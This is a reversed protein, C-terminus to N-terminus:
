VKMPMSDELSIMLVLLESNEKIYMSTVHLTSTKGLTTNPNIRQIHSNIDRWSSEKHFEQTKLEINLSTFQTMMWIISSLANELESTRLLMKLLQSKSIVTSNWYRDTTNSGSQHLLQSPMMLMNHEQLLLPHSKTHGTRWQRWFSQTLMRKYISLKKVFLTLQV